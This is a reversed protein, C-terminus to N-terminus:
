TADCMVYISLYYSAELISLYEYKEIHPNLDPAIFEALGLIHTAVQCWILSRNLSTFRLKSSTSRLPPYTCGQNPFIDMKLEVLFGEASLM